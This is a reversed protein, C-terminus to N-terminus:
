LTEGVSIEIDRTATDVIRASKKAVLRGASPLFVDAELIIDMTADVDQDTINERLDDVVVNYTSGGSTEFAMYLKSQM